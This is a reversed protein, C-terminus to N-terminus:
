FQPISDVYVIVFFEQGAFQNAVTQAVNNCCNNCVM